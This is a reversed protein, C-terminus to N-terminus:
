SRFTIKLRDARDTMTNLSQFPRFLDNNLDIVTITKIQFLTYKDIKQNSIKVHTIYM